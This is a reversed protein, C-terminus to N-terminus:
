PDQDIFKVKAVVFRIEYTTKRQWGTKRRTEPNKDVILTLKVETVCKVYIKIKM